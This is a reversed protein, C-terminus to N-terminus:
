RHQLSAKGVDFTFTEGMGGCEALMPTQRTSTRFFANGRGGAGGKAAVFMTGDEVLEAVIERELNRFITGVPVDVITHTANKGAMLNSRGAVGASATIVSPVTELSSVTKDAQLLM